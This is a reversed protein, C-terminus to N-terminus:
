LLDSNRNNYKGSIVDLAIQMDNLQKEEDESMKYDPNAEIAKFMAQLTVNMGNLLDKVEEVSIIQNCAYAIVASRSMYHRKAFADLKELLEENVTFSIRIAKSEEPNKKPRM